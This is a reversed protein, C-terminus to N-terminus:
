CRLPLSREFTSHLEKLNKDYHQYADGEKLYQSDKKLDVSLMDELKSAKADSLSKGFIDEGKDIFDDM